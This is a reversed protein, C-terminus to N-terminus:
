RNMTNFIYVVMFLLWGWALTKMVKSQWGTKTYNFAIHNFLLGLAVILSRYGNSQFDNAPLVVFVNFLLLAIIFVLFLHKWLRTIVTTM